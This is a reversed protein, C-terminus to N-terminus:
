FNCGKPQKINEKLYSDCMKESEPDPCDGDLKEFSIDASYGGGASAYESTEKIPWGSASSIYVVHSYASTGSTAGVKTFGWKDVTTLNGTSPDVISETGLFSDVGSLTRVATCNGAVSRPLFRDINGVTPSAPFTSISSGSNCVPSDGFIKTCAAVTTGNNTTVSSMQTEGMFQDGGSNYIKKTLVTLFDFQDQKSEDYENHVWITTWSFYDAVNNGSDIYNGSIKM